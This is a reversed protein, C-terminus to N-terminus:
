AAAQRAEAIVAAVRATSGRHAVRSRLADLRRVLQSRASEDTLWQTVHQAIETSRDVCTLYEPFLAEDADPSSPDYLSLNKPHLEAAALLNVLTIYKVRRVIEQLFFSLRSVQYLIVTPTTEYLLELSVSGSVAVACDALHILEGTRGQHVEADLSREALAARVWDAHRERFCAFAIRSHPVTRKVKAVVDLLAGLNERVEHDRSGPLMAVLPATQEYYPQMFEGDLRREALDDFFPHGVYTANCGHRRYWEVEFPLCCLVHDIDRRVRRVRWEGWAWTQPPCYFYVPIGRRKAARALSWHFGPYDILVVADPRERDLTEAALRLVGRLKPVAAIARFIGIIAMSPLDFLVRCGAAQMRPGGLGICEAGSRRQLERILNAGHLDGSPEGASIFLKM